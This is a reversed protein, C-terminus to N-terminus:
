LLYPQMSPMSSLILAAEITLEEESNAMIEMMTNEVQKGDVKQEWIKM